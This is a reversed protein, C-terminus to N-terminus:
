RAIRTTGNTLVLPFVSIARSGTPVHHGGLVIAPIDRNEAPEFTLTIETGCNEVRVSGAEADITLVKIGAESQGEELILKLTGARSNPRSIELFAKKSGGITSVGTLKAINPPSVPAGSRVPFTHLGFGNRRIIEKYPGGKCVAIAGQMPLSLIVLGILIQTCLNM